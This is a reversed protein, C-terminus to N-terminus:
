SQQFIEVKGLKLLYLGIPTQGELYILSGAEVQFRHFLRAIAQMASEPLSEWTRQSGLWLIYEAMEAEDPAVTPDCDILQPLPQDLSPPISRSPFISTLEISNM